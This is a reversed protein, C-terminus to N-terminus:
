RDLLRSLNQPNLHASIELTQLQGRKNLRASAPWYCCELKEAIKWLSAKLRYNLADHLLDSNTKDRVKSRWAFATTKRNIMRISVCFIVMRANQWCVHCIGIRTEPVGPLRKMSVALKTRRTLDNSGKTSPYECGLNTTPLPTWTLIAPPRRQLSCKHSLM